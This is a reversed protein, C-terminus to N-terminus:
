GGLLAEPPLPVWDPQHPQCAASGPRSPHPCLLPKGSARARAERASLCLVLGILHSDVPSGPNSQVQRGCGGLGLNSVSWMLRPSVSVWPPRGEVSCVCHTWRWMWGQGVFIGSLMFLFVALSSHRGLGPLQCCAASPSLHNGSHGGLQSNTLRSPPSPPHPSTPCTQFCSVSM